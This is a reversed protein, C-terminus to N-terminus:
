LQPVNWRMGTGCDKSAMYHSELKFSIWQLVPKGKLVKANSDENLCYLINLYTEKTAKITSRYDKQFRSLPIKSHKSKEM